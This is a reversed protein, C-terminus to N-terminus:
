SVMLSVETIIYVRGIEVMWRLMGIFSQYWLDLGPELVPTKELDTEYNTVFINDPSKPM